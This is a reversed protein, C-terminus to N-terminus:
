KKRNSMDVTIDTQEYKAGNYEADIASFLQERQNRYEEFSLEANYYSALLERLCDTYQSKIM